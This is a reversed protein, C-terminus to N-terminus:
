SEARAKAIKQLIDPDKYDADANLNTAISSHIQTASSVAARCNLIMKRAIDPTSGNSILDPLLNQCNGLDCAEMIELIRAREALTASEAINNINVSQDLLANEVNSSATIKTPDTESMSIGKSKIISLFENKTVLANSLGMNVAKEGLYVQAQTNIVDSESLGMNRAVTSIFIGYIDNVKEQALAIVEPSLPSNPSFDAKHNGKFITTYKIGKSMNASSQDAHVMIVGISGVNATRTCYVREAASAIAYAASCGTDNIFALIPKISRSQYIYDALDFCGSVEGGPSNIDLVITDTNSDDLALDLQAAISDYSTLGSMPRLGASKHVLTGYINIVSVNEPYQMSVRTSKQSSSSNTYAYTTPDNIFQTPEDQGMFLKLDIRGDLASIIEQLKGETLLLPVGVIRSQVLKLVSM